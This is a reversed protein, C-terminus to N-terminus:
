VLYVFHYRVFLGHIYFCPPSSNYGEDIDVTPVDDGAWQVAPNETAWANLLYNAISFKGPLSFAPGPPLPQGLCRSRLFSRYIWRVDQVRVPMGFNLVSSLFIRYVDQPGFAVYYCLNLLSGGFVHSSVLISSKKNEKKLKTWHWQKKTFSTPWPKKTFNSALSCLILFFGPMRTINVKKPPMTTFTLLLM